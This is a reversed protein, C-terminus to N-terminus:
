KNWIKRRLYNKPVLTSLRLSSDIIKKAERKGSLYAGLVTSHHKKETAEWAFFVKNNVSKALDDYYKDTAGVPVFSYAGYSNEDLSWRSIAYHTPEPINNGYMARLSKMAETVIEQNTKTELRTAYSGGNLGLLIPANTYKYANVWFPRAWEPHDVYQIIDRNKDNNRFVTDFQLFTKTLLGMELWSIAQQKDTPLAPTFKIVWKKLVGLPVTVIVYDSQITNGSNYTILVGTNSYDISTVRSGTQITLWQAMQQVLQMYGHVFADDGNEEAEKLINLTSVQKPDAAIDNTIETQITALFLKREEPALTRAYNYIYIDLWTDQAEDVEEDVYDRFKNYIKEARSLSQKSVEKGSLYSVSDDYDTLTTKIKYGDILTKIQNNKIGHIRSAGLDVNIGSSIQTTFLRGGIRSTAELVTVKYGAEQLDKAATIWAMGAWVVVVSKKENDMTNATHIKYLLPYSLWWIIVLIILFLFKM